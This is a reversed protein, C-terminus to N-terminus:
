AASEDEADLWEVDEITVPRRRFGIGTSIRFLARRGGILVVRGATAIMRGPDARALADLEARCEFQDFTDAPDSM